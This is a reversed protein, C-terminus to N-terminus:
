SKPLKMLELIGNMLDEAKTFIVKSTTWDDNQNRGNCELMYGNDYEYVSFSEDRKTLAPMKYAKLATVM